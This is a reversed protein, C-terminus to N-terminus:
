FLLLGLRCYEGGLFGKYYDCYDLIMCVDIGFDEIDIIFYM